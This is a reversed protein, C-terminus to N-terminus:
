SIVFTIICAVLFAQIIPVSLLSLLQRCNSLVMDLSLMVLKYRIQSLMYVKGYLIELLMDVFSAPLASRVVQSVHFMADKSSLSDLEQEWVLMSSLYELTTRLGACDEKKVFTVFSTACNEIVSCLMKEFANLSSLQPSGTKTSESSDKPGLESNKNDCHSMLLCFLKSLM